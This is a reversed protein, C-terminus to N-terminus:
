LAEIGPKELIALKRKEESGEAAPEQEKPAPQKPSAESPQQTPQPQLELETTETQM